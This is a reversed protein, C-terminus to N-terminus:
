KQEGSFLRAGARFERGPRSRLGHILGGLSGLAFVLSRLFVIAPSILGVSRDKRYTKLSFPLSSLGILIWQAGIAYVLAPLFVCLPLLPLSLAMLLTQIKIVKPTYTDRVAKDPFRRYVVLRWYGRWYKLKLYNLVSDPHAHYVFAKPNFVLLYGAESLRYSLDTDENNAVPFSEDFGGAEVFVNRRFAASYTDIMDISRSKELLDYRDEFEAQAFRAGIEKQKTKYAGKVAAVSSDRFPLTMEEIWHRDPVCDSDTFLIIEGRAKEVGRNRASAPGQNEQYDYIVNFSKAVEATGDTSGDDMLIIEFHEKPISQGALAELCSKLTKEANYAPIVVSVKARLTVAATRDM